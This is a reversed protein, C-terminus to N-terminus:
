DMEELGIALLKSPDNEERWSEDAKGGGSAPVNKPDGPPPSGKGTRVSKDQLAKAYSQLYDQGTGRTSLSKVEPDDPEIIFGTKSALLFAQYNM